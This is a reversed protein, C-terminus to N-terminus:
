AAAKPERKNSQSLGKWSEWEMALFAQREEQNMEAIKVEAEAGLSVVAERLSNVLDDKVSAPIGLIPLALTLAVKGHELTIDKVMGLEVLTRNIAPHTVQGVARHVEEESINETV